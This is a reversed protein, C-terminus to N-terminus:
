QSAAGRLAVPDAADLPCSSAAALLGNSLCYSALTRPFRRVSGSELNMVLLADEADLLGWSDFPSFRGVRQAGEPLELAKGDRADFLWVSDGVFLQLWRGRPSYEALLRRGAEAPLAGLSVRERVVGSSASVLNFEADLASPHKPDPAATVVGFTRRDPSLLLNCTAGGAASAGLVKKGQRELKPSAPLVTAEGDEIICSVGRGLARQHRADALGWSACDKYEGLRTQPRGCVFGSDESFALEQTYYEAALTRVPQYTDVDKTEGSRLNVLTLRAPAFSFAASREDRSLALAPAVRGRKKVSFLVKGSELERVSITWLDESGERVATALYKGGRSLVPTSLSDRPRESQFLVKQALTDVLLVGRSHSLWLKGGTGFDLSLEKVDAPILPSELSWLPELSQRDLLVLHGAGDLTALPGGDPASRPALRCNVSADSGGDVAMSVAQHSVPDYTLLRSATVFGHLEVNAGLEFLKARADLNKLDELVLVRGLPEAMVPRALLRDDPSLWADRATSEARLTMLLPPGGRTGPRAAPDVYPAPPPAEQSAAPKAEVKPQLSPPASESTGSCAVIGPAMLLLGLLTDPITAVRM